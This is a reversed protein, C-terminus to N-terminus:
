LKPNSAQPKSILTLPSSHVEQISADVGPLAADVSINGSSGLNAIEVEVDVEDGVYADKPAVSLVEPVSTDKYFLVSENSELSPHQVAWVRM